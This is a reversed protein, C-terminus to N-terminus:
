NSVSLLKTGGLTGDTEFTVTALAAKCNEGTIAVDIEFTGPTAFHVELRKPFNNSALHLGKTPGGDLFFAIDAFHKANRPIARELHTGLSTNGYAWSLEIWDDESIVTSSGSSVTKKLVTASARCGVAASLGQNSVLLRIYRANAAIGAAAYPTDVVSKGVDTKIKLIPRNFFKVLEAASVAIIGGGIAGSFVALAMEWVSFTTESVM